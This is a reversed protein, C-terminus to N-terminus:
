MIIDKVENKKTMGVPTKIAINAAKSADYLINITNDKINNQHLDMLTKEVWLSDFCEKVDYFIIDIPESAKRNVCDSIVANLVFLNDRPSREKRAGINSEGLSDEITDICSTYLMKM